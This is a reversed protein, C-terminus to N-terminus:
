SKKNYQNTLRREFNSSDCDNKMCQYIRVWAISRVENQNTIGMRKAYWDLVGFSGFDLDQIGAAKEEQTYDIRISSFLSNIRKLERSIFSSFGFIDNLDANLLDTPNINLLIEATAAIPDNSDAAERLDDLTGYSLSNLDHPITKGCLQSPTPQEELRKLLRKREEEQIFPLLHLFYGYTPIDKQTNAM